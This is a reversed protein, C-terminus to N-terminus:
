LDYTRIFEIVKKIVLQQQEKFPAHGCNKPAFTETKGSTLRAITEIQKLTGYQDDEGQIVLQPVEINPLLETIDWNKFEEALWIDNWAYFVEKYRNGHYKKLGEMKGKELLPRAEKVGIITQPENLVHAAETIITKVNKHQGAYILAISGGDSHGYLIPNKIKHLEIFAALEESSEHLYNSTRNLLSGPTNGYGARDYVIGKVGLETCLEEPYTKWMKICGLGEHLFIITTDSSQDGVTVWNIKSVSQTNM